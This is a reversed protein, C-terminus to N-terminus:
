KRDDTKDISDPIGDEDSDTFSLAIFTIFGIMTPGTLEKLLSLLSTLNEKGLWWMYIWVGYYTMAILFVLLGYIVIIETVLNNAIKEKAMDLISTFYKTVKFM